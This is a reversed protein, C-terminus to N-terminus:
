PSGTPPPPAEQPPADRTGPAPGPAPEAAEKELELLKTSITTTSRVVKDPPASPDAGEKRIEQESQITTELRVPVALEADIWVMAQNEYRRTKLTLKGAPVPVPPLDQGDLTQRVRVTRRGDQEAEGLLELKRDLQGVGPVDWTEQKTYGAGASVGPLYLRVNDLQAAVAAPDTPIMLALLQDRQPGEPVLAAAAAVLSEVGEVKQVRGGPTVLLRVPKDRIAEYVAPMVALPGGLPNERRASDVDLGHAAAQIRRRELTMALWTRGEENGAPSLSLQVSTDTNQSTSGETGETEIDEVVRVEYRAREVRDWRYGLFTRSTENPPSAPAAPKAGAPEAPPAAPGEAAALMGASGLLVAGIVARLRRREM